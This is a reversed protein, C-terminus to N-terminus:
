ARFWVHGLVGRLGFVNRALVRFRNRCCDIRLQTGAVFVRGFMMRVVRFCLCAAIRVFERMFNALGDRLTFVHQCVHSEVRLIPRRRFCSDHFRVQTIKYNGGFQGAVYVRMDVHVRVDCVCM